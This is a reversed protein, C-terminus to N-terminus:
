FSQLSPSLPPFAEGQLNIATEPLRSAQWLADSLHQISDNSFDGAKIWGTVAAAVDPYRVTHSKGYHLWNQLAAPNLTRTTSGLGLERLALANSLQEVQAKLPKVLVKIGLQLAESTLEFGANSIIGNCLALHQHFGEVSPAHWQIHPYALNSKRDNSVHYNNTQADPHFIAFKFNQFPALAREIDTQSEFPLYVVILRCDKHESTSRVPAIPPLIPMDFHHWHLGLNLDAPAFWKLLLHQYINGAHRPVPYKFAYQHGLGICRVKRLRAAWATVPEFDTLVLDYANLDLQRVERMFNLPAANLATKLPHVEGRETVFTMGQRTQYNGFEEMDFYNEPQRGSFLYDVSIGAASLAKTMARARSLHGNGTGQVGYLIRM